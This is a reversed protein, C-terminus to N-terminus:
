RWARGRRGHTGSSRRGRKSSDPYNRYHIYWVHSVPRHLAESNTQALSRNEFCQIMTVSATSMYSLVKVIM